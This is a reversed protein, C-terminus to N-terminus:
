AQALMQRRWQAPPLGSWQRFARTFASQEAFGLLQAIDALPLRPDRLYEEALLRRTDDLLAQYRLGDAALRRQLTRVSVHLETALDELSARHERLLRIMVRRYRDGVPPRTARALMEEAQRDLLALLGADPQRLPLQLYELPFYLETCPQGFLVEGGFFAEYPRADEPAPNVFCVRRLSWDRGTIDRALHVLAAIGTEDVLQGPRGYETGWRVVVQGQEMAIRLPNVDYVLSAYREARALAEGLNACALVLYGVIGFHRPSIGQAVRLGLAKGGVQAAATELMRRWLDITIRPQEWEDPLPGLLVEADLGERSLFEYLLRVYATSVHSIHMAHNTLILRTKDLGPHLM